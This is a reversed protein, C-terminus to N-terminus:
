WPKRLLVSYFVRGEYNNPPEDDGREGVRFDNGDSPWRVYLVALVEPEAGEVGAQPNIDHFIVKYQFGPYLTSDAFVEEGAPIDDPVLKDESLLGNNTGDDIVMRSQLEAFVDEALRAATALAIARQHSSAAIGLLSMVGVSGILFVALAIIIEIITFGQRAKM